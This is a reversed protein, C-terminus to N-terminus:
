NYTASFALGGTWTSLTYTTGSSSPDGNSNYGVHGVLGLGWHDSVWWEKGISARVGLGWDTDSSNNNITLRMKTLAITASTYINYPMYYVTYEPGIGWMNVTGNNATASNTAGNVTLSISPSTVVADIIHVALINNEAIAGGIALGGLGTLGSLTFSTGNAGDESASLYGLGLDPRIYFGFHRHITTDSPPRSALAPDSKQAPL